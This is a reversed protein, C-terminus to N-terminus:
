TKCLSEIKIISENVKVNSAGKCFNYLIMNIIEYNDRLYTEKKRIM